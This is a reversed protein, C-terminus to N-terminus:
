RVSPTWCFQNSVVSIIRPIRSFLPIAPDNAVPTPWNFLKANFHQTWQSTYMRVFSISRNADIQDSGTFFEIHRRSAGGSFVPRQNISNRQSAIACRLGKITSLRIATPNSNTHIMNMSLSLSLFNPCAIRDDSWWTSLILQCFWNAIDSGLDASASLTSGISDGLRVM